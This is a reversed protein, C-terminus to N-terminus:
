EFWYYIIFTILSLFINDGLNLHAEIITSIFATLLLSLLQYNIKGFSFIIIMFIIQSIFM